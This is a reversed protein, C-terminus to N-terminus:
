EYVVGKFPFPNIGKCPIIEYDDVDSLTYDFEDTIRQFAILVAQKISTAIVLMEDCHARTASNKRVHWFFKYENM